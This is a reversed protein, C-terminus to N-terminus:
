ILYCFLNFAQRKDLMTKGDPIGYCNGVFDIAESIVDKMDSNLEGLLSLKRMKMVKITTKKGVGHFCCVSDCGTLAHAALLSPVLSEHKQASKGIDQEARKPQNWLLLLM